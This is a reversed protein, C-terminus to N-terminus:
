KLLNDLYLRQMVRLHRWLFGVWRLEADACLPLHSYKINSKGINMSSFAPPFPKGLPPLVAIIAKAPRAAASNM